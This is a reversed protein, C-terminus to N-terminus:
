TRAAKEAASVAKVVKIFPVIFLACLAGGVVIIAPLLYRAFRTGKMQQAIERFDSDMEAAKETDAIAAEWNNQAKHSLGRFLYSQADKPDIEIARSFDAIAPDLQKVDEVGKTATDWDANGGTTQMLIAYGRNYYAGSYEGGLAIVKDFAVKATRYDGSNLADEGKKWEIDIKQDDTLKTQASAPLPSFTIFLLILLSYIRM